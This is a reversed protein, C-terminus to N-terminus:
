NQGPALEAANAIAITRLLLEALRAMGKADVTNMGEAFGLEVGDVHVKPLGIRMTPIGASRINNADTSGSLGSPTVHARGEMDEWATRGAECIWHDPATHSGAIEVSLEAAVALGSDAKRLRDLVKEIRSLADAGSEGPLLRQDVRVTASAPLFASMRSWGAHVSAVMSQPELTDSIRQGQEVEFLEELALVIRASDAVANRYPLRHRAGVYTHTGRVTIDTWALGVEEHQVFWGSKAVLAADITIGVRDFEGLLADIGRGHATDKRDDDDLGFTPMGGAGFAVIVDGPLDIDSGALVAAAEIITAVHGKPNQAGLGTVTQGDKSIVAHPLLHGEIADAVQPTDDGPRGTTVTDIPSYLLLTPGQGARPGRAPIKGWASASREDLEMLQGDVGAEALLEVIRQACAREYGTPAAVDVVAACTRVLRERDVATHFSESM